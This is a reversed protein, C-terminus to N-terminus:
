VLPASINLFTENCASHMIFQLLQLMGYIGSGTCKANSEPNLDPFKSFNLSFSEDTRKNQQGPDWSEQATGLQRAKSSPVIVTWHHRVM